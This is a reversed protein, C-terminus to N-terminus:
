RRLAELVPQLEAIVREPEVFQVGMGALLNRGRGVAGTPDIRHVVRAKFQLPGSEIAPIRLEVVVVQQLEAPSATSLFLGGASIDRHYVSLFSSSDVFDVPILELGALGDALAGGNASEAAGAASLEPAAESAAAEGDAGRRGTAGEGGPGRRGGSTARAAPVLEAVLEEPQLFRVGIGPQEVHRLALAVRHVRAIRGEAIFGRDADMLELRIREGLRLSHATGLFLGSRSVNTTFGTHAESEGRRWFRVEFRRPFRVDSRREM